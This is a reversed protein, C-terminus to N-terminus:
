RKKKELLIHYKSGSDTVVCAMDGSTASSDKIRDIRKIASTHIEDGDCFDEHGFVKGVLICKEASPILRDIEPHELFYIFDEEMKEHDNNKSYIEWEKMILM